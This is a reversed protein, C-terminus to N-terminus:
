KHYNGIILGHLSPIFLDLSCSQAPVVPVLQIPVSKQPGTAAPHRLSRLSRMSVYLPKGCMKLDRLIVCVVVICESLHCVKPHLVSQGSFWIEVKQRKLGHALSEATMPFIPALGWVAFLVLSLIVIGFGFWGWTKPLKM